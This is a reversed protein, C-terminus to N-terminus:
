DIEIHRVPGWIKEIAPVIRKFFEEPSEDRFYRYEAKGFRQKGPCFFTVVTLEGGPRVAYPALLVKMEDTWYDDTIGLLSIKQTGKEFGRLLYNGPHKGIHEVIPKWGNKMFEVPDLFNGSTTMVYM